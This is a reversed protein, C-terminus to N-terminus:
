HPPRGFGDIPCAPEKADARPGFGDPRPGFPPRFGRGPGGLRAELAAVKALQEPTLKGSLADIAKLLAEASHGRAVAANALLRAREFPENTQDGPPTGPTPAAPRALPSPPALVALLADTFDRWADLQNARIGIETEAAALADALHGPGFPPAGMRSRGEAGPPPGDCKAGPGDPPPPPLTADAVLRDGRKLSDKPIDMMAWVTRAAPRESLMESWAPSSVLLSGVAVFCSLNLIYSILNIGYNM